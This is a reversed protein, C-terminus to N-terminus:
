DSQGVQKACHQCFQQVRQCSDVCCPVCVLCPLTFCLLCSYCYTKNGAIHTVRTTGVQRCFPCQIVISTRCGEANSPYQTLQVVQQVMQPGMPQPQGMQQPQSIPQPQGMQQNPYQQYQPPQQQQQYYGQQPQAYAPNQQVPYQYQPNQQVLPQQAVVLERETIVTTNGQDTQM